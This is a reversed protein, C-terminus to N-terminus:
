ARPKLTSRCTAWTPRVLAAAPRAVVLEHLQESLSRWTRRPMPGRRSHCRDLASQEQTDGSPTGIAYGLTVPYRVMRLGAVTVSLALSPGSPVAVLPHRRGTPFAIAPTTRRRRRPPRPAGVMSRELHRRRLRPAGPGPDLEGTQRAKAPLHRQLPIRRALRPIRATSSWHGTSGPHHGIVCGAGPRVRSNCVTELVGLARLRDM